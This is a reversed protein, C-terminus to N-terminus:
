LCIRIQSLAELIIDSFSIIINANSNSNPVSVQLSATPPTERTCNSSNNQAVNIFPPKSNSIPVSVPLPTTTEKAKKNKQAFVYKQELEKYEKSDQLDSHTMNIYKIYKDGYKKHLALLILDNKSLKDSISECVLIHEYLEMGHNNNYCFHCTDETKEEQIISPPDM